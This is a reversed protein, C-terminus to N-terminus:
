NCPSWSKDNSQAEHPSYCWGLDVIKEYIARREECAATTRPNGVTGGWCRHAADELKSILASPRNKSKEVPKEGRERFQSVHLNAESIAGTRLDKILMYIYSDDSTYWCGSGDNVQRQPTEKKSILVRAHLGKCEPLRTPERHLEFVAKAGDSSPVKAVALLDATAPGAAILATFLVVTRRKM